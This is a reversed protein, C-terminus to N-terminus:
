PNSYGGLQIECIIRIIYTTKPLSDLDLIYKEGDELITLPLNSIEQGLVNFLQISTIPVDTLNITVKDASIIVDFFEKNFTVDIPDHYKCEGNV